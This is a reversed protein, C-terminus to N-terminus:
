LEFVFGFWFILQLRFLFMPVKLFQLVIWYNTILTILAICACILIDSLKVRYLPTYWLSSDNPSSNSTWSWIGLMWINLTYMLIDLPATIGGGKRRGQSSMCFSLTVIVLFTLLGEEIRDNIENFISKGGSSTENLM